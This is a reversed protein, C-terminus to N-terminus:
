RFGDGLGTGIAASGTGIAAFGVPTSSSLAVNVLVQPEGVQSVLKSGEGRLEGAGSCSSSCARVQTDGYESTPQPVRPESTPTGPSALAASQTLHPKPQPLHMKTHHTGSLALAASQALPASQQDNTLRAHASALLHIGKAGGGKISNPEFRGRQPFPEFSAQAQAAAEEAAEISEYNIPKDEGCQRVERDYALAAEEKTDYTGLNHQKSNYRLLGKWRKGNASANVGYFGSAPRPEPQKPGACLAHVLVFGAQAQKAADEAAEISEYNLLKDEGCSRAKSDYALAAEQKTDFSGLFHVKNDYYILSKWKRKCASVGYFGSPPRPRVKCTKKRVLHQGTNGHKRARKRNSPTSLVSIRKKSKM